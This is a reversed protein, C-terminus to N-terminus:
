VLFIVENLSNKKQTVKQCRVWRPCHQTNQCWEAMLINAYIEWKYDELATISTISYLQVNFRCSLIKIFSWAM